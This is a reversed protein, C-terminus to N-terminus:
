NSFRRKRISFQIIGFIIVLMIPLLINLLQWELQKEIAKNKDLMRIKLERSRISMLGIDDNLYNLSNLILEKNGFTKGTHRDYGLPLPLYQGNSMQIQNKIIDGDAIVIMKNETSKQKSLTKDLVNSINLPRNKFVSEFEGELLVAVPQNSSNYERTDPDNGIISLDIIAPTQVIKTYQSTTLLITKKIMPGGVTDINSIFETRIANINKVIPHSSVPTLVPFFPWPFFEFQPQSGLYGTVMPISLSSIDLLLNSNLRVGYKFLQDDLNIDRTIGVTQTASQLSDMSAFVPDILWLIRGGHM